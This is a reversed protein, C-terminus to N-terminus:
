GCGCNVPLDGAENLKSELPEEFILYGFTLGVVMSIIVYGNMTMILLMTLIHMFSYYSYYLVLM